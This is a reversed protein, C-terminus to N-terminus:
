EEDRWERQQRDRDLRNMVVMLYGTMGVVYVLNFSLVPLALSTALSGLLIAPFGAYVALVVLQRVTLRNRRGFSMLTFVAAFMAIYVLVEFLSQLFLVPPLIFPLALEFLARLRLRPFLESTMGPLAWRIPPSKTLEPVLESASGLERAGSLRGIDSQMVSLAYANNELKFWLGLRDPMWLLGREAGQAFNEPLQPVAAVGGSEAAGAPLYSVALPGPLLFNRAREPERLPVLGAASLSLGGCHEGILNATMRGVALVRPYVGCSMIATGLLLILLLHWLTRGLKQEKLEAFIATGRCSGSLARWFGVTM